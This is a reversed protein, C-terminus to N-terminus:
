LRTVLMFDPLFGTKETSAQQYTQWDTETDLDFCIGPATFEHWAMNLRKAELCHKQFSYPGYQFQFAATPPMLLANTGTRGQDPCIIVGTSKDAQLVMEQIERSQLFPLDAPIILIHDVNNLKAYKAAQTVATKLSFPQNERITVAGAAQALSLVTEDHSIIVCQAIEPVTQLVHLTHEFLSRMLAARENRSLIGSLRTKSQDFPKVPIIAWIKTTPNPHAM